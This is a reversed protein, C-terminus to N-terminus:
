ELEQKRKKSENSTKAIHKLTCTCKRKEMTRATATAQMHQMNLM